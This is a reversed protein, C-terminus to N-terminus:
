GNVRQHTNTTAQPATHIKGGGLVEGKSSLHVEKYLIVFIKSNHPRLPFEPVNMKGQALFCHGAQAPLLRSVNVSRPEGARHGSGLPRSHHPAPTHPSSCPSRVGAPLAKGQPFHPGAERSSPSFGRLRTHVAQSSPTTTGLTFPVLRDGHPCSSRLYYEAQHRSERTNAPAGVLCCCSAVSDM